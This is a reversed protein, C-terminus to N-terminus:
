RSAKTTDGINSTFGSINGFAFHYGVGVHVFCDPSGLSPRAQWRPLKEFHNFATANHHFGIAVNDPLDIAQGDHSSTCQSITERGSDGGRDPGATCPQDIDFASGLHRARNMGFAKLNQAPQQPKQKAGIM